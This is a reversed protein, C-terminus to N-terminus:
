LSVGSKRLEKIAAERLETENMQRYMASRGKLVAMCDQIMAKTIDDHQNEHPVDEGALTAEPPETLTQTARSKSM